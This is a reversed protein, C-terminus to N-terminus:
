LFHNSKLCLASGRPSPFCGWKQKWHLRVEKLPLQWNLQLQLNSQHRIASTHNFFCVPSPSHILDIPVNALFLMDWLATCPIVQCVCFFPFGWSDNSSNWKKDLILELFFSWGTQVTVNACDWHWLSSFTEGAHQCFLWCTSVVVHLNLGSQM